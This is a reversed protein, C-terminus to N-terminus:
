QITVEDALLHEVEVCAYIGACEPRNQRMRRAMVFTILNEWGEDNEVFDKAGLIGVVQHCSNCLAALFDSDQDNEKGLVHHSSLKDKKKGCLQCIGEKLGATNGRKGGFYSANARHEERCKRSCTKQKKNMGYFEEGCDVCIAKGTGHQQSYIKWFEMDIKQIYKVLMEVDVGIMRSLPTVAISGGRLSDIASLVEEHNMVPARNKCKHRNGYGTTFGKLSAMSAVAAYTRGLRMAAESLTCTELLLRLEELERKEWNRCPMPYGIVKLREWVSQGCLGLLRAAKWVNGTEKYAAIIEENTRRKPQPM